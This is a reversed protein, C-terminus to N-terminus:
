FSFDKAGLLFHHKFAISSALTNVPESPFFNSTKELVNAHCTQAVALLNGSRCIILALSDNFDSGMTDVCVNKQTQWPSPMMFKLTSAAKSTKTSAYVPSVSIKVAFHMTDDISVPFPNKYGVTTASSLFSARNNNTM